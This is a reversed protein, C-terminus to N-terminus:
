LWKLSTMDDLLSTMDDLLAVETAFEVNVSMLSQHGTACEVNWSM